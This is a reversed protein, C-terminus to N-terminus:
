VCRVKFYTTYITVVASQPTVFLTKELHSPSNTYHNGDVANSASYM